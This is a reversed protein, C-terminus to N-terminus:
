RRPERRGSSIGDRGHRGSRRPSGGSLLGDAEAFWAGLLRNVEAAHTVTVGHAASSMEHYRAGPIGAALTRGLAPPAIPDEAASVVLTPIGGLEQLRPTADYARYAAVQRMVVPPTDALDHGFIPELTRSWADRDERARMEGPLVIELFAHRRRRRTGLRTRLTTWLFSATVPPMDRGRASTCLLSLSRVRRPCALALATAVHGGMSHGVVHCDQWRQAEMLARADEAMRPLSLRRVGLPQSLAMGRNDFTMCTYRDSLAEVQPLWGDGHLGVGQIFLVPPGDGVVRYSLRCGHCELTTLAV